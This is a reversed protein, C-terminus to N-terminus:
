DRLKARSLILALEEDASEEMPGVAADDVSKALLPDNSDADEDLEDDITFEGRDYMRAEEDDSDAYENASVDSSHFSHKGHNYLNVVVFRNDKGFSDVVGTAGNFQVDGTVVVDDGVSLGEADEELTYGVARNSGVAGYRRITEAIYDNLTKM